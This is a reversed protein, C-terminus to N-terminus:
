RFFIQLLTASASLVRNAPAEWACSASMCRTSIVPEDILRMAMSPASGIWVSVWSSMLFVPAVDTVSSIWFRDLMCPKVVSDCDTLPPPAPTVVAESCSRPELYVSTSRLPWRMAEYLVPESTLRFPMGSDATSRTSTSLSPADASYPASAIAPTTLKMRFFSVVAPASVADASMGCFAPPRLAVTDM